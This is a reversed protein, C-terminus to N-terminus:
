VIKDINWDGWIFGLIEALAGAEHHVRVAFITQATKVHFMTPIQMPLRAWWLPIYGSIWNIKSVIQMKILMMCIQIILITKAKFEM